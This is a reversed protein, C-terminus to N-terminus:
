PGEKGAICNEYRHKLQKIDRTTSLLLAGISLRKVVAGAGGTYFGEAAGAHRGIAAIGAGTADRHAISNGLSAAGIYLAGIVAAAGSIEPLAFEAEVGLIDLGLAAGDKGLAYARCQTPSRKKKEDGANAREQKRSRDPNGPVGVTDTIKNGGFEPPPSLCHGPSGGWKCATIVIGLDNQDLGFPDISNVPDNLVYAYLNSSDSYGIPDPQAFIGLQPLYARAKYHYAGLEPVWMQGTYQFRGSNSAGPRGYEDYSNVLLLTDSDDSLATVSGREDENYWTRVGSPNYQVLPEDAGSGFVYRYQLAGAADYHALVHDGDYAFRMDSSGTAVQNLRRLADYHVSVGGSASTLLNESSYGYTKGTTPDTTLNGKSDWTATSGGVSVQQNLGNSTYATAGNGLGTFAYADGTRTSSAIESAPNYAFTANFENTAGRLNTLSALRSVPDYTFNQVAGNGLARSMRNGLDDYSYIALVGIGSAAGNERVKQVEGTVLYDYNVYFGDPYTLQTRHDALDYASNFAGQPGTESIKRSLADWGFSLANGTQSASTLRGLNDYGYTVDPETGPLDKLTVRGLNDHGFAISTGDRLRRSAVTQSTRTNSATNEYNLQEYLTADSTGAGKTASPFQTQSLRDHGDYIYTTKNNEADLLSTVLGNNSYTLTRENAADNANGTGLGVQVQTVEDAQDYVLKTIRDPGYSGATGGTCADAPLSTFAAPNMRVAQCQPRSEGDYSIQTLTQTVGDSGALGLTVPRAASDYGVTTTELVSMAAWDTDSASNVTGREIKSVNGDVSYTRRVARMKLAGTGDPDPSSTGVLRRALDYRLTTTDAAGALPGDITKMNGVNDNTFITVASLSGTGNARTIGTLLLQSSWSYTTKTEDALGACSASTQCQSVSQLKSVVTGGPTTISTYTFRAQPRIGGTAPAPLTISQLTGNTLYAYDTVNGREDTTSTPQNCTAPNSCTSPYAASIIIDPLGSGSKAVRKVQTVNGRSDYSYQTYNGEPLTERDIKNAVYSRTTVHGLEDTISTPLGVATDSVVTKAHGLPDTRVATMIGTGPTFAYSWTMGDRVVSSVRGNADVNVVLNPSAASPRKVTFQSTGSSYVWRNGDPGTVGGTTDYSATPWGQTTTCTGALPDCPDITTNIGKVSVLRQWESANLPVDITDRAYNYHLQYGLSSSVSQMRVAHGFTTCQDQLTTCWEITNYSLTLKEGTPYTVSTARAKYSDYIGFSNYVIVTGDDLTLTYQTPSNVVFASGSGDDPVYVGGVYNFTIARQGVVVNFGVGASGTMTMSYNSANIGWGQARVYRLGGPGDPGISVDTHYNVQEGTAWNVGNEDLEQRSHPMTESGANQALAPTALATTALLVCQLARRSLRNTM